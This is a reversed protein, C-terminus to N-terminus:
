SDNDVYRTTLRTDFSSDRSLPLLVLAENFTSRHTVVCESAMKWQRLENPMSAAASRLDQREGISVM